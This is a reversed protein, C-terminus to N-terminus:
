KHLVIKTLVIFTSVTYQSVLFSIKISIITENSSAVCGSLVIMLGGSGSGRSGSGFSFPLLLGLLLDIWGLRM